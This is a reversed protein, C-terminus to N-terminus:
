SPRAFECLAAHENAAHEQRAGPRADADGRCLRRDGQPCQGRLVRSGPERPEWRRLCGTRDAAGRTHRDSGNPCPPCHPGSRSGSQRLAALASVIVAVKSAATEPWTQEM